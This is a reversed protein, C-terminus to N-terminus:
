GVGAVGKCVLGSITRETRGGAGSKIEPRTVGAVLILEAETQNQGVLDSLSLFIM